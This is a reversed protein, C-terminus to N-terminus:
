HNLIELPLGEAGSMAMGQAKRVGTASLILPQEHARSREWCQGLGPEENHERWPVLAADLGSCMVGQM